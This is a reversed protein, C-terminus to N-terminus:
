IVEIYEYSHRFYSGSSTIYITPFIIAGHSFEPFDQTQVGSVKECQYSELVYETIEESKLM